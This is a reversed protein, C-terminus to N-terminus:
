LLRFGSVDKPLEIQWIATSDSQYVKMLKDSSPQVGLTKSLKLTFHSLKISKFTDAGYQNLMQRLGAPAADYSDPGRYFTVYICKGALSEVSTLPDNPKPVSKSAISDAMWDKSDFAYRGAAFHQALLKSHRSILDPYLDANRSHRFFFDWDNNFISVNQWQCHHRMLTYSISLPKLLTDFYGREKFFDDFNGGRDTFALRLETPLDMWFRVNLTESDIQYQESRLLKTICEQYLKYAASREQQPISELFTAEAQMKATGFTKDGDYITRISGLLKADISVTLGGACVM